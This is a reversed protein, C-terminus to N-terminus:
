NVEILEDIQESLQQKGNQVRSAMVRSHVEILIPGLKGEIVRPINRMVQQVHEILGKKQQFTVDKKLLSEYVQMKAQIIEIELSEMLLDCEKALETLNPNTQLEQHVEEILSEDLKTLYHEAFALDFTLSTLLTTM